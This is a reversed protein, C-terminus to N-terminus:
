SVDAGVIFTGTGNNTYFVKEVRDYMGAISDSKRYCPILELKNQSNDSLLFYYLKARGIQPTGQYPKLYCLNISDNFYSVSWTNAFTSQGIKESISLTGSVYTGTVNVIDSTSPNANGFFKEQWNFWGSYKNSSKSYGLNGTHTDTTQLENGGLGLVPCFSQSRDTVLFKFLFSDSEYFTVDPFWLYQTGTTQLFEVEQYEDPVQCRLILDYEDSANIIITKTNTIGIITATVTWPTLSDFQSQHIIFYYDYVTPDAMNEHGADSKTTGNKSITVVAGAPAQVRLIADTPTFSGGGGVMNLVLSM